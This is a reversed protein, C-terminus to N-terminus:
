KTFEFNLLVQDYIATYLGRDEVKPIYQIIRYISTANRIYTVNYYGMPGNVARWLSPNGSVTMNAESLVTGEADHSSAFDTTTASINQDVVIEIKSGQLLESDTAQAVAIPDAFMAPNADDTNENTWGNPIKAAYMYKSNTYSTWNATKTIVSTNSNANNVTNTNAANTNTTHSGDNTKVDDSSNNRNYLYIISVVLVFAIVFVIVAVLSHYNTKPKAKVPKNKPM